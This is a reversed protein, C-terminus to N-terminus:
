TAIREPHDMRAFRRLETVPILTRGGIRRFAIQRIALLYDLSRVSISLSEAAEERGVLLKDMPPIAVRAPPKMLDTNIRPM